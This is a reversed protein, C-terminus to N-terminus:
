LLPSCARCRPWGAERAEAATVERRPWPNAAGKTDAHPCTAYHLLDRRDGMAEGWTVMVGPPATVLILAPRRPACLACSAPDIDHRCLNM